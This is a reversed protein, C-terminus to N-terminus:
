FIGQTKQPYRSYPTWLGRAELDNARNIGDDSLKPPESYWSGMTKPCVPSNQVAAVGEPVKGGFLQKFATALKPKSHCGGDEVGSVRLM